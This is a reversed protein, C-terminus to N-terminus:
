NFKVFVYYSNSNEVRIVEVIMKNKLDKFEPENKFSEIIEEQTEASTEFKKNMSNFTTIGGRSGAYQFGKIKMEECLSNFKTKPM